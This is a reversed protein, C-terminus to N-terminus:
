LTRHARTKGDRDTSATITARTKHANDPKLYFPLSSIHRARARKIRKDCAPCSDVATLKPKGCGRTDVSARRQKKM